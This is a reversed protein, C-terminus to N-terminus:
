TCAFLLARSDHVCGCDAELNTRWQCANKTSLTQCDPDCTMQCWVGRVESILLYPFGDAFATEHAPAFEADTERRKPDANADGAGPQGANAVAPPEAQLTRGLSIGRAALNLRQLHSIDPGRAFSEIQNVSLEVATCCSLHDLMM